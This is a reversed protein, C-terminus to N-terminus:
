GAPEAPAPVAGPLRDLRAARGAPRDPGPKRTQRLELVPGELDPPIRRPHRHACSPRDVLGAQGGQQYRSWWRDACTRSIGMEGAIHAVPRGAAIRQCLVLRGAATLRANAHAM